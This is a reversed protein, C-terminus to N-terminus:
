LNPYCAPAVVLYHVKRNGKRMFADIKLMGRSNM